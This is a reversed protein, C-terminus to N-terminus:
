VVQFGDQNGCTPVLVIVNKHRLRGPFGPICRFVFLKIKHMIFIVDNPVFAEGSPLNQEIVPHRAEKLNMDMSQNVTPRVYRYMIAVESLCALCDIYAIRKALQQLLIIKEAVKTRLEIYMAHEIAKRREGAGLIKEEFEKLEPTIYRESNSLTQKRIWEKPAKDKHTNTVELFYGFVRNYKIKLSTIGTAIRQEEEMKAIASVGEESLTVLEDLEKSNGKAIPATM